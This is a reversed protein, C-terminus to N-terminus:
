AIGVNQLSIFSYSYFFVGEGFLCIPEGLERLREKVRGDETPVALFRAM